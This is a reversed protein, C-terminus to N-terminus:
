AFRATCLLPDAPLFFGILLDTGASAGLAEVGASLRHPDLPDLPNLGLTATALVPMVPGRGLRGSVSSGV